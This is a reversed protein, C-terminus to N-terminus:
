SHALAPPPRSFLSFQLLRLAVRDTFSALPCGSAQLLGAHVQTGSPLASHMAVCLTCSAEDGPWPSSDSHTAVQFRPGLLRAGHLHNAQASSAFLLLLLSLGAVLRMWLPHATRFAAPQSQKTM